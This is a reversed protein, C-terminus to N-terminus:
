FLLAMREGRQEYLDARVVDLRPYHVPRGEFLHGAKAVLGANEGVLLITWRTVESTEAWGAVSYEATKIVDSM